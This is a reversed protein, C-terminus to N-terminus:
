NDNNKYIEMIRENDVIVTYHKQMNDLTEQAKEIGQSAAKELYPRAKDYDKRLVELVGRLYAAEPLDGAKYIHQLAKEYDEKIMASNAANLNAIEDHPYMKVALEWLGLFEDSGSEYTQALVYFEDLSLKQPASLMIQEIEQPTSYERIVYEISYDTRRLTPYCNELLYKYDEKWNSKIYWEKNDPERSSRIAALIETKHPLDSNEVYIELGEWNEPVYSTQIFGKKFKYLDEVYKKLSNTRESALRANNSYPSEPSAYGKISLSTVVIDPDSKVSDISNFIKSLEADNNRYEPYIKTRGAPFDIFATGGLERTKLVEAAPRIYIFEPKYPESPFNTLSKDDDCLPEGCCGYVSYNVDLSCKDMWNRVAVKAQYSLTDPREKKKYELSVPDKPMPNLGPNRQYYIYRNRGYVGISQLMVSDNEGKICPTFVALETTSIDLSTFVIDMDVYLSDGIRQMELNSVRIGHISTTDSVNKALVASASCAMVVIILAIKFLKKMAM